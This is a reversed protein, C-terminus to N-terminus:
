RSGSERFDVGYSFLPTDTLSLLLRIKSPFRSQGCNLSLYPFFTTVGPNIQRVQGVFDSETKISFMKNDPAVVKEWTGDPYGMECGHIQLTISYNIISRPGGNKLTLNFDRWAPSATSTWVIAPQDVSTATIDNIVFVIDKQSYQATGVPTNRQPVPPSNVVIDGGVVGVNLNMGSQNNQNVLVSTSSKQAPNTETASQKRFNFRGISFNDVSYGGNFVMFIAVLITAFSVIGTLALIPHSVISKWAKRALVKRQLIKEIKSMELAINETHSYQIRFSNRLRDELTLKCVWKIALVEGMHQGSVVFEIPLSSQRRVQNVDLTTLNEVAYDIDWTEGAQLVNKDLDAIGKGRQALYRASKEYLLQGQFVKLDLNVFPQSTTNTLRLGFEQM